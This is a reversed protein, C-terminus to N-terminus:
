LVEEEGQGTVLLLCYEKTEKIAVLRAKESQDSLNELRRM